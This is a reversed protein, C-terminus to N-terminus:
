YLAIDWNKPGRTKPGIGGASLGRARHAQEYHINTATMMPVPREPGPTNALRRKIRRRGQQFFRKQRAVRKNRITASV